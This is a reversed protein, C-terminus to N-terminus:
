SSFPRKRTMHCFRACSYLPHSDTKCCVCYSADSNIHNATFSTISKSAFPTKKGFSANKPSKKPQVSSESAQACLNLFELLKQYHPMETTEQSHKQWEFMTDTDLKLELVSTIFPGSPEHGMAKLARLHQLVADHLCCLEKGSGDKVYPAELIMRVHAQHILRPRDFRSVLCDVAETYHDGSRTLGEIARRAPGDKLSQQLYVLKEAKSLNSRDHISICFQEWFAKWNGDFTALKPLKVGDSGSKDPKRISSQAHLLKKVTLLCDFMMKEINSQAEEQGSSLLGKRIDELERKSDSLQEEYLQLLCIDDPLAKIAEDITTLNKELRLFRRSAM